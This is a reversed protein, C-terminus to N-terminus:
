PMASELVFPNTITRRGFRKLLYVKNDPQIKEKEVIDKIIPNKLSPIRSQFFPWLSNSVYDKDKDPFGIIPVIENQNKFESSYKFDWEGNKETLTGISLKKYVLIFSTSPNITDKKVKGRRSTMNIDNIKKM